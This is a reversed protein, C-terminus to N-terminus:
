PGAKPMVPPPPPAVVPMGQPYRAWLALERLSRGPFDYLALRSESAGTFGTTFIWIPASFVLLFGHSLTTATGLAGWATLGVEGTQYAALRASDIKPEPITHPGRPTNVTVGHDDAALLEGRVEGGGRLRVLIYGGYATTQMAEATRLTGSPAPNTACGVLLVLLSAVRM